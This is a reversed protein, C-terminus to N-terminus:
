TRVAIVIRPHASAHLFRGITTIAARSVSVCGATVGAGVHLFYGGGAGPRCPNTNYGILFALYSWSHRGAWLEGSRSLRNCVPTRGGRGGSGSIVSATTSSDSWGDGPRLKRYHAVGTVRHGTNAPLGVAETLPFSGLPTADVGEHPHRTVGAAGTHAVVERGIRRWSRGDTSRRWLTVVARTTRLGDAVISVVEGTVAPVAPGPFPQRRVAPRRVTQRVTEAAAHGTGPPVAGKSTPAASSVTAPRSTASSNTIGPVRTMGFLVAGALALIAVNTHGRPVGRGTIERQQVGCQDAPTGAFQLWVAGTVDHRPDGTLSVTAGTNTVTATYATYSIVDGPLATTRDAALALALALDPTITAAAVTKGAHVNANGTASAPAAAYGSLSAATLLLPLTAM